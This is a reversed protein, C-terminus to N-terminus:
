DMGLATRQTGQDCYHLVANLCSVITLEGESVLIYEGDEVVVPYGSSDGFHRPNLGGQDM